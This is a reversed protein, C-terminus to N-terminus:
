HQILIRTTSALGRPNSVKVLIVGLPAHDPVTIRTQSGQMPTKSILVGDITLLDVIVSQSTNGIHVIVDEGRTAISPYCTVEYFEAIDDIESVYGLQPLILESTYLHYEGPEFTYDVNVDVVEVANGTFFDYWTGTYPFNVKVLEPEVNFNAVSVVDMDSHNLVVQKIFSDSNFFQYDSTSFVPYTTKLHFLESLRSKLVGRNQDELYDWRIPKRSLRCGEDISGDECRNISYDFGMEQFQWLMKPGPVSYFITAAAAVRQYGTPYAKTDYDGDAAGWKNVKYMMREEDHSEMYGIVHPDDWGRQQYDMWNLNSPYGMAAEASQHQVNGWLMMGYGSLEEEEQNDAFHELIVYSDSDVSWIHDAYGKLIAVRSADYQGMLGVNGISNTQTFGKSLDFRFGDFRYEEIMYSLVQRVWAKTAPSEHNFDYGVNFPHTAEVNLWPNDPSPRFNQQDWYMQCLPSQSFAHNYVVDLIVAIGLSHAEDIVAKLETRSGYYKDVAMHFSPNYGWSDNNEFENIPMLEIANVGLADLYDLTDLLSAYSHDALFDRLLLEYIILDEKAPKEFDEVMWPYVVYDIDFATVLGDAYAEPYPPLDQLASAPVEDDNWKDLVVTSYPDAVTVDGSMLYQYVSRNNDFLTKPLAIWHRAGDLTQNMLYDPNAKFENDVTLLFVYDKQPAYVQFILSDETYYNLGNITGVPPTGYQIIGDLVFFERTIRQEDTDTTVVVELIHTGSGSPTYTLEANDIFDEELITEGNDIFTIQAFQNAEVGVSLEDGEFLIINEETPSTLTVFLGDEPPYIDTFIDGGGVERGSQSGDGSRFVFALQLVLEGEPINYYEQPIYTISYLDDSVRTMLSNPDETGWNGVVYKWDNPASSESTIVGTHAYVAGEFGQLGADGKSADFYVTVEDFQTPFAPETYVVQQGVVENSLSCVIVIIMLRYLM